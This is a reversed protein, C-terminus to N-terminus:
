HSGDAAQLAALLPDIETTDPLSTEHHRRIIAALRPSGGAQALIEAGWDAHRAAVVWPRRWGTPEGISWARASAPMLHQSLVVLVRDFLRLPARTKGVDHLLAAALLDPDTHGQRLLSRLVAMSHAREARRMGNFLPRLGPPLYAAALASDEAAPNALLAHVFQSARYGARTM